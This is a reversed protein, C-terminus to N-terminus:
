VGPGGLLDVPRAAGAPRPLRALRTLGAADGTRGPGAPYERDHAAKRIGSSDGTM